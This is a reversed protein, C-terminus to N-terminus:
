TGLVKTPKSPRPETTRILGLTTNRLGAGCDFTQLRGTGATGTEAFCGCSFAFASKRHAITKSTALCALHRSWQSGVLEHLPIQQQNTLTFTHNAVM